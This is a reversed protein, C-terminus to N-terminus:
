LNRKRMSRQYGLQHMSMLKRQYELLIRGLCSFLSFLQQSFIIQRCLLLVVFVVCYCYLLRSQFLGDKKTIVGGNSAKRTFNNASPYLKCFRPSCLIGNQASYPRNTSKSTCFEAGSLAGIHGVPMYIAVHQERLNRPCQGCQKNPVKSPCSTRQTIQLLM